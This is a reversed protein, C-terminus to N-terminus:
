AESFVRKAIADVEGTTINTAKAIKGTTKLGRAIADMVMFHNPSENVNSASSM